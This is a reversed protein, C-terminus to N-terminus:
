CLLQVLTQVAAVRAESERRDVAGELRLDFCTHRCPELPRTVDGRVDCANGFVVMVQDAGAALAHLIDVLRDKTRHEAPDAVSVVELDIVLPEVEVTKAGAATALLSRELDYSAARLLGRDRDHDARM